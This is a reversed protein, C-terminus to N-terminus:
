FFKSATNGRATKGSSVIHSVLADMDDFWVNDSEIKIDHSNEFFVIDNVWADEPIQKRLLFVARRLQKFPSKLTKTHTEDTWQDWKYQIFNGGREVIRGKWRKVEIAFLKSKYLILCDIEANGEATQVIINKKIKCDPLRAQIDLVFEDEGENGYRKEDSTYPLSPEVMRTFIIKIKHFLGM